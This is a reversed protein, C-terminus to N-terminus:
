SVREVVLGNGLLKTVRIPTGTPIEDGSASVADYERLRHAVTIQVSGGQKSINAYVTGTCGVTQELGVSGSSQLRMMSMFVRGIIWASGIGAVIAAAVAVTAGLNSGRMIAFGTLGFMTLFATIGQISLLKFGIDSDAHHVDLGDGDAGFGIVMLLLRLTLLVGGVLACLLFFFDLGHYALLWDIM